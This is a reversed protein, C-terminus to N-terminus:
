GASLELCLLASKEALLSIEYTQSEEVVEGETGTVVPGISDYSCTGAVHRFWRLRPDSEQRVDDPLTAAVRPSALLMVGGKLCLAELEAVAIGSGRIAWTDGSSSHSVRSLRLAHGELSQFQRGLAAWDFSVTAPREQQVRLEEALQAIGSAKIGRRAAEKDALLRPM